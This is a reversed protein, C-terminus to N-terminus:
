WCGVFRPSEPRITFRRSTCEHRTLEYGSPWGEGHHHVRGRPSNSFRDAGDRCQTSAGKPPAECNEPRPVTQGKSNM